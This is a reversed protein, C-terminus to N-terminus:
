GDFREMGHHLRVTFVITRGVRVATGAGHMSAATGRQGRRLGTLHSGQLRAYSMWEPGVKVFGGAQGSPFRDPNLLRLRAEGVPLEEALIGAAAGQAGEGVVLTVRMWRPYVDDLPDALSSPGVDLSFGEGPVDPDTLWGARASDWVREAGGGGDVGGWRETNQSWMEFGVYLLGDVLPETLAEVQEATLERSPDVVQMPEIQRSGVEVPEGPLFLGRRLQMLAGDPDGAPWPLLWLRARGGQPIGSLEEALQRDMTGLEAGLQRQVLAREAEADIRVLGRLIQVRDQSGGPRDWGAPVPQVLMRSEPVGPAENSLPGLLDALQERVLRAADGSRDALAQGEEGEEFMRVGSALLQVLMVCFGALLGMVVVLELLTFGASRQPARTM